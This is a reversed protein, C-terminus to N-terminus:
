AQHATGRDYVAGVHVRSTPSWSVGARYGLRPQGTTEAQVARQEILPPFPPRPVEVTREPLFTMVKVQDVVVAGGVSLTAMPSVSVALSAQYFARDTQTFGQAPLLVSTTGSPLEALVTLEGAQRARYLAYGAVTVHTTPYALALFFPPPNHTRTRSNEIQLEAPVLTAAPTKTLRGGTVVPVYAIDGYVSGAFEGRVLLRLAAPNTLAATADDPMGIGAGAMAVTRATLPAADFRLATIGQLNIVQASASAPSALLLGALVCIRPM